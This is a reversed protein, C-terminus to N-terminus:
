SVIMSYQVQQLNRGMSDDVTFTFYYTGSATPTGTVWIGNNGTPDSTLQLGPGISGSGSSPTEVSVVQFMQGSIKYPSMGGQVVQQKGIAQGKTAPTLTTNASALPPFVNIVGSEEKHLECGYIVETSGAAPEPVPCQSSNPSPFAGLEENDVLQLITPKHPQEPDMNTFFVNETNDISVTEFTVNGGDRTIRIQKMSKEKREVRKSPQRLTAQNISLFALVKDAQQSSANL